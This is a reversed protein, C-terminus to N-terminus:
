GQRKIYLGASPNEVRVGQLNYYEVPADSDEFSDAIVDDVGSLQDETMWNLTIYETGNVALTKGDNFASLNKIMTVVQDSYAPLTGIGTATIGEPVAKGNGIAIFKGSITYGTKDSGAVIGSSASGECNAVVYGDNLTINNRLRGVIGGAHSGKVDVVAYSNQITVDNGTTGIFGGTYVAPCDLKGTVFVNDITLSTSNGHGAYAALAGVGLQGNVINCDIVGLNKITGAAVGFLTSSYYGGVNDVPDQAVPTFNRIVHYNGDYNFKGYYAGGWGNLPQFGCDAINKMDLDATQKFYVTNGAENQPILKHANCFDEVSQILYPNAASGDQVVETPEEYWNLTIYETGNVALTKGDEFASLNKIMTVVQDSYAPLTGIGTATIGEPVAKGNGIAIFKGSITYGTKDSGAVIGSSASGECNAVVYGDNLTINNRLRGVIGGAHSGKVDVVAYSNQITVDNGTTGIFGGTYVAPCDLKGTVFVNDITLSTSNGHGAYAALAGVGLQGNVINCDIVGLNKITGAAVGFLTSSYYGGVNDVPDQAVPTFNRIVHYNGDYNFKGYYAGGWGNLPQFGCDAINKMDLDATQKFYVTNGAENQPILKHANCFDEVTQILYPDAATGKGELINQDEVETITLKTTACYVGKATNTEPQDSGTPFYTYVYFSNDDIKQVSISSMGNGNAFESGEWSAVCNGDLDFIGYNLVGLSATYAPHAAEFEASVYNRVLYTKGEYQFSAIGMRLRNGIGQLPAWQGDATFNAVMGESVKTSNAPASAQNAKWDAMGYPLYFCNEPYQQSTIEGVTFYSPVAYSLQSEGANALLGPISMTCKKATLSTVKTGDGKFHLMLVDGSNAMSIYGIGGEA